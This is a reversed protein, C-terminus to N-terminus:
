EKMKMLRFIYWTNLLKWLYVISEQYRVQYFPNKQLHILTKRYEDIFKKEYGKWKANLYEIAEQLDEAVSPDAIIRYKKM